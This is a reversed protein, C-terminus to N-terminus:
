IKKLDTLISARVADIASNIPSVGLIAYFKRRESGDVASTWAYCTDTQPHQVKFVHVVGEWVTQGQFTEKVPEVRDFRATCGHLSQIAAQLQDRSVEIM